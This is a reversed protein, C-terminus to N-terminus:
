VWMHICVKEGAEIGESNEEITIFGDSLVLSSIIGSGKLAIPIVRNQEVRVRVFDRRGVESAVREGLIGFAFKQIKTSLMRELVPIVFAYFQIFCAVPYGSMIFVPPNRSFGFPRGPRMAVGSFLPDVVDSVLDKKGVSSGGTVLLFDSKRSGEELVRQLSAKEDKVMRSFAVEGGCKQVLSSIMLSNSELIKGVGLESVDRVLESGTIVIGVRPKRKVLIERIGCSKLIGLDQPRVLRGKRVIVEGRRMDEGRTSVNLCPYGKEGILIFDNENHAYEKMIVCDCGRPMSSGTAVEVCQGRKVKRAFVEGAMAQGLLVLRVPKQPSARLVDNGLCAFGDVAARAWPPSDLTSKIDHAIVRDLSMRLPVSEKVTEQFSSLVIRQADKFSIVRRV